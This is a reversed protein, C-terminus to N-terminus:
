GDSRCGVTSRRYQVSISAVEDPAIRGGRFNHQFATLNPQLASTLRDTRAANNNGMTRCMSGIIKASITFLSKYCVVCPNIVGNESIIAIKIMEGFNLQYM